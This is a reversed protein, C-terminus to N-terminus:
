IRMLNLIPLSYKTAKRINKIVQIPTETQHHHLQDAATAVVQVPLTDVRIVTDLMRNRHLPRAVATGTPDKRFM